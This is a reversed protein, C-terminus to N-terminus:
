EQGMEDYKGDVTGPAKPWHSSCRAGSTDGNQGKKAVQPKIAVKDVFVHIWNNLLFLFRVTNQEKSTLLQLASWPKSLCRQCSIQQTKLIWCAVM